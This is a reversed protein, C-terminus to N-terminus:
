GAAKEIRELETSHCAFLNPYQAHQNRTKATLPILEVRFREGQPPNLNPAFLRYGLEELMYLVALCEEDGFKGPRNEFLLM